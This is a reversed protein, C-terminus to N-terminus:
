RIAPLEKARDVGFGHPERCELLNM